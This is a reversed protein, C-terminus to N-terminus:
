WRSIWMIVRKKEWSSTVGILPSSELSRKM